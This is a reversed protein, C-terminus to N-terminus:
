DGQEKKEQVAKLVYVLSALKQHLVGVLSSLPAAITGVAMGLLEQRGPLGALQDIDEASLVDGNLAGLKIVPLNNEKIFDKLLKSVEVVDGAGHIMATPGDQVAAAFAELSASRAAHALLRNKTVLMRADAKRLRQRLSQSQEVTLGMYDALIVFESSALRDRMEDTIAEKEPRM